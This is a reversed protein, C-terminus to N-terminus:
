VPVQGCVGARSRCTQTCLLARATWIVYQATLQSNLHQLWRHMDGVSVCHTHSVCACEIRCAKAIPGSTTPCPLSAEGLAVASPLYPVAVTALWACCRMSSWWAEPRVLTRFRTGGVAGTGTRLQSTPPRMASRM